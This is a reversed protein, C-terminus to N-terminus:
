VDIGLHQAGTSIDSYRNTTTDKMSRVVSNCYIKAAVSAGVIISAPLAPLSLPAAMTLTSAILGYTGYSEDNKAQVIINDTHTARQTLSTVYNARTMGQPVNINTTALTNPDLVIAKIQNNLDELDKISTDLDKNDTLASDMMNAGVFVSFAAGAIHASTQLYSDHATLLTSTHNACSIAANWVVNYIGTGAYSLVSGLGSCIASSIGTEPTFNYIAKITTNIINPHITVIAGAAVLLGVEKKGIGLM